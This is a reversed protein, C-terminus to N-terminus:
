DCTLASIAPILEVVDIVFTVDIQKTPSFFVFTKFSVTTAGDDSMVRSQAPRMWIGVNIQM